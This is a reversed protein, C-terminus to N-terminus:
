QVFWKHISWCSFFAVVAILYECLTIVEAANLHKMSRRWRRRWLLHVRAKQQNECLLNFIFETFKMHIEKTHANKKQSAEVLARRFWAHIRSISIACLACIYWFFFSFLFVCVVVVSTPRRTVYCNTSIRLVEIDFIRPLKHPFTEWDATCVCLAFSVFILPLLLHLSPFDTALHSCCCLFWIDCMHM